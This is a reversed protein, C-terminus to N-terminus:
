YDSPVGEVGQLTDRPCGLNFSILRNWPHTGLLTLPDHGLKNSALRGPDPGGDCDQQDNDDKETGLGQRDAYIDGRLGNLVGTGAAGDLVRLVPAARGGYHGPVLRRVQCQVDAVLDGAYRHLADFLGIGAADVGRHVKEVM